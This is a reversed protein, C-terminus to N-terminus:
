AADLEDLLSDFSDESFAENIVDAGDNGLLTDNGLGGALTDTGAQGLLQDDGDGGEVDLLAVADEIQQCHSM